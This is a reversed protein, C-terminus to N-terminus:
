SELKLKLRRPIQKLVYVPGVMLVGDADIDAGNPPVEGQELPRRIPARETYALVAYRCDPAKIAILSWARSDPEATYECASVGLLTYRNPTEAQSYVEAQKAANPTDFLDPLLAAVVNATGKTSAASLILGFRGAIVDCPDPQADDWEVVEDIEIDPLPVKNVIDVQLSTDATRNVARGRGIAQILEDECVGRRMVEALPDPHRESRVSKEAGTLPVYVPPYYGSGLSQCHHRFLAEAHREAAEPPPQTRGIVILLDVDGWEDRGRIANFHAIEVNPPLGLEVLKEELSKQCIVLVRKYQASRAEVYRRVRAVNRRGTNSLDFKAAAASFLVQRYSVYPTQAKAVTVRGIVPDLPYEYDHGISGDEDIFTECTYGPPSQWLDFLHRTADWKATADAFLTPVIFDKHVRRQRIWRLEVEGGDLPAARMSWPGYQRIERYFSTEQILAANASATRAAEKIDAPSTMEITQKRNFTDKILRGIQLNSLGFDRRQLRVGIPLARLADGFAPAVDESKLVLPKQPDDGDLGAALPDEDVILYDVPPIPKHRARFMIQHAAIWVVATKKRQKQFGCDSSHPCISCLKGADGSSQFASLEDPIWCMTKEDQDPDTQGPGLYVEAEVGTERIRQVLERSLKHNSVVILVCHGRRLASLLMPLCDVYARTKGLGVQAEIGHRPPPDSAYVYQRNIKLLGIAGKETLDERSKHGAQWRRADSAWRVVSRRMKERAVDADDREGIAYGEATKFAKAIWDDCSRQLVEDSIEHAVYAESHKGRDWNASAARRRVDAKLASLDVREGHQTIYSAIASTIVAHCGEKGEGDGLLAMKAEYGHAAQLGVGDVSDSSYRPRRTDIQPVAVVDRLGRLLGKRKGIPDLLGGSFIPSAVFHQQVSQFLSTDVDYGRLWSKLEQSSLPRDLWFWLHGSILNTDSLGSSASLSFSCTTERFELPLLSRLYEMAEPTTPDLEGPNAVKDIDILMWYRPQELFWPVKEGESASVHSARRVMGGDRPVADPNLRGRIIFQNGTDSIEVLLDHLEYINNAKREEQQFFKGANHSKTIREGAPNLLHTKSATYGPACTLVTITCGEPNNCCSITKM